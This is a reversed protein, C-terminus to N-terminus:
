KFSPELVGDDDVLRPAPRKPTVAPARPGRAVSSGARNPETAPVRSAPKDTAVASAAPVAVIAPQTLTPSPPLDQGAPAAVSPATGAPAVMAPNGTPAGTAPAAPAPATLAPATLPVQGRLSLAAVAAGAAGTILATVLLYWAPVLAPGPGEAREGPDAAHSSRSSGKGVGPIRAVVEDLARAADALAVAAGIIEREPDVQSRGARARGASFRAAEPGLEPEPPFRRLTSTSPMDLLTAGPVDGHSAGDRTEHLQELVVPGVTPLASVLGGPIGGQAAPNHRYSRGGRGNKASNLRREPRRGGHGM